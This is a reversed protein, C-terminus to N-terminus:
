AACSLAGELELLWRKRELGRRLRRARRRHAARPPVPRRDADPELRACQRGRALRAPQWGRRRGRRLQARRRLPDRRDRAAGATRVPRGADLRAGISLRAPARSTTTSSEGRRDLAGPTEVIRPSIRDRSASSCRSSTRRPFPSACSGAATTAALLEGFPSDVRDRLRRGRSGRDVSARDSAPPTRQPARARASRWVAGM